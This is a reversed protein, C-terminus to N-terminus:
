PLSTEDDTQPSEQKSMRDDALARMVTRLTAQHGGENAGFQEWSSALEWQTNFEALSDAYYRSDNRFTVEFVNLARRTRRDPNSTIYPEFFGMASTLLTSGSIDMPTLRLEIQGPFRERLNLYSDTVPRFTRAYYDSAKVIDVINDLTPREARADHKIFVALSNWPSSIIVKFVTGAELARVIESYFMDLDPLLYSAGAHAILRIINRERALAEAKARNRLDNEQPTYTREILYPLEESMRERARLSAQAERLSITQSHDRGLANVAKQVASDLLELARERRAANKEGDGAAVEFEATALAAQTIITQRHDPGLQAVANLHVVELEDLSSDISQTKGAARAQQFRGAALASWAGISRPHDAGNIRVFEDVGTAFEALSLSVARQDDLARAAALRVWLAMLQPGLDREAGSHQERRSERVARDAWARAGAPDGVELAVAGLNALIRSPRPTPSRQERGLGTALVMAARAPEGHEALLSGLENWLLSPYSEQGTEAEALRIHRLTLEVVSLSLQKRGIVLLLKALSVLRQVLSEDPQEGPGPEGLEDVRRILSDTEGTVVGETGDLVVQAVALAEDLNERSIM